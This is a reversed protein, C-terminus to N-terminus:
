KKYSVFIFHITGYRLDTKLIKVKVKDGFTIMRKNKRGIIRLNDADYEYTDDQMDAIRVM